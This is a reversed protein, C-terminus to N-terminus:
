ILGDVKSPKSKKKHVKAKIELLKQASILGLYFPEGDKGQGDYALTYLRKQGRKFKPSDNIVYEMEELRELHIRIQTHGLGLAERADKRSFFFDEQDIKKANATEQVWKNLRILFSRTPGPLEDLTTGLVIAALRNALLIDNSNTEIYEKTTGHKTIIKIERQFQNLFTVTRILTLYKEFDRRTRHNNDVFSLYKAYPNFVHIPRLIRQINKHLTRVKEAEDKLFLGDLSQKKRQIEHIKKTQERSENVTLILCRNELEDDINYNTTCMIIMVPGEVTYEETILKGTDVNKTTSAISIQGESQLLKLSYTVREAGEEEVIALIKNKLSGMYYLSQSTLASFKVIDEDPMMDLVADMLTTKGAGSSSQIIVALPKDYKRSSAAIYGVLSNIGEGVLGTKEIDKIILEEVFNKQKAYAKAEEMEAIGLELKQKINKNVEQDILDDQIEELILIIKKLDKNIIESEINLEESSQKIFGKRNKSSFLDIQNDSFYNDEITLRLRVKLIAKSLNKELDYFTYVRNGITFIYSSAANYNTKKEWVLDNSKENNLDIALKELSKLQNESEIFVAGQLLLELDKTPHKVRQIYENADLGTPFNVKFSQINNEALSSSIKKISEQVPLRSGAPSEKGEKVLDQDFAIYVKEVKSDVLAKRLEDTFGNIGFTCTVNRFGHVWFSLADIVSECLIIERSTQIAKINFIGSHKKSLYLHNSYGSKEKLRRAYIDVINSNEDLFPFILYGNFLLRGKETIFGIDKLMQRVQKGENGTPLKQLFSNDVYGIQFEEIIEQNQLSRNAWLYTVCELNNKVVKNFHEISRRLIQQCNIDRIPTAETETNSRPSVPAKEKIGDPPPSEFLQPAMKKLVQIAEGESINDKHKVWDIVSGAKGCGKCHFVNKVVNIHLSPNKDEHFPCLGAYEGSGLKKLKIGEAIALDVLKIESKLRSLEYNDTNKQM